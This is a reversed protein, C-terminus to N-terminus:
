LHEKPKHDMIWLYRFAWQWSIHHRAQPLAEAFRQLDRRKFARQISILGDIRATRTKIFFLSFPKFLYYALPNRQLDNIVVGLAALDLFRKLFVVIDADNFHHLTLSSIVIDCDVAEMGGHLVNKKLYRIEPFDSSQEQALQLADGNLDVGICKLSLGRSRAAICLSRLMYGDACGVDLITYSKKPNEEILRFVADQTIAIGGLLRNVRNIDALITRLEELPGSYTDMLEKQTSRIAFSSM